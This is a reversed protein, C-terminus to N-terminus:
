RNNSGRAGPLSLGHQSADARTREAADLCQHDVDLDVDRGPQRLGGGDAQGVAGHALRAIADARREPVRAELIGLPADVTFRAGAPMRLSPTPKSRAM